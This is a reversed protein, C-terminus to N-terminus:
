YARCKRHSRLCLYWRAFEVQEKDVYKDEIQQFWNEIEILKDM